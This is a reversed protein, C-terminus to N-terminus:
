GASQLDNWLLGSGRDLARQLTALLPARYGYFDHSPLGTESRSRPLAVCLAYATPLLLAGFAIWARRRM